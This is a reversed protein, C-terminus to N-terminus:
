PTRERKRGQFWEDLRERYLDGTMEPDVDVKLDYGSAWGGSTSRRYEDPKMDFDLAIQRLARAMEDMDDAQLNLTLTLRRKPPAEDTV